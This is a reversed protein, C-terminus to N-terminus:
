IRATAIFVAMIGALLGLYIKRINDSQSGFATIRFADHPCSPICDGCLTCSFGAFGSRIIDKDLAGFRCHPICDLCLTCKKKEIKLKVPYIKAFLVSLFGIPCYSTCHVMTGNKGSLLVIVFIGTMGWVLGYILISAYPLNFLRLIIAGAALVALMIGQWMRPDKVFIGPIKKRLSSLNDWGGIYCLHSCWAPGLLFLTILYLIPMFFGAARFIPGAAIMAPVPLHAEGTMMFIKLGAIGLFFQTFFVISFLLWMRLRWVSSKSGSLKEAAFAGYVAFLFITIWGSGPYFRDALLITLPTKIKAIILIMTATVFAITSSLSTELDQDFRERLKKSRALYATWGTFIAVVALIIVLRTFPLGLRMRLQALKIGTNIWELSGAFLMIGTVNLMWRKKFFLFVLFLLITIALLDIGKRSWHAAQLVISIGILILRWM